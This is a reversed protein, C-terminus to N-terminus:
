RRGDCRATAATPCVPRRDRQRMERKRRLDADLHELRDIQAGSEPIFRVPIVGAVVDGADHLTPATGAPRYSRRGSSGTVHGLGDANGAVDPAGGAFGAGDHGVRAAQEGFDLGEAAAPEDFGAVVAFQPIDIQVAACDMEASSHQDCRGVRIPHLPVRYRVLHPWECGPLWRRPFGAGDRIRSTAPRTVRRQETRDV